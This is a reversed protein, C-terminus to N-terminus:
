KARKYRPNDKESFLGQDLNERIFTRLGDSEATVTISEVKPEPTIESQSDTTKPAARNPVVSRKVVGQVKGQDIAREVFTSDLLALEMEDGDLRVRLFIYRFIKPNGWM